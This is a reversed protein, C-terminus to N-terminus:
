IQGLRAVFGGIVGGQYSFSSHKINGFHSAGTTGGSVKTIKCDVIFGYSDWNETLNYFQGTTHGINGFRLDTGTAQGDGVIEEVLTDGITLSTTHNNWTLLTQDFSATINRIRMYGECHYTASSTVNLRFTTTGGTNYADFVLYENALFTQKSSFKFISKFGATTSDYDDETNSFCEFSSPNQAQVTTPAAQSVDTWSTFPVISGQGLERFVDRAM